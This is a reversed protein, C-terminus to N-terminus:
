TKRVGKRLSSRLLWGGGAAVLFGPVATAWVAAAVGGIAFALGFVIFAVAVVRVFVSAVVEATRTDSTHVPAPSGPNTMSV